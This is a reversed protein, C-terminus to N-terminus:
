NVVIEAATVGSKKKEADVVGYTIKLKAESSAAFTTDNEAGGKATAKLRIKYERSASVAPLKGWKGTEANYKDADPDFWEDETELPLSQRM